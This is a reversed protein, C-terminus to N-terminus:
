YMGSRDFWRPDLGIREEPPRPRLVHLDRGEVAALFSRHGSDIVPDLLEPTAPYDGAM